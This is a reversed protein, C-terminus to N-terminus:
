KGGAAASKESYNPDATTDKYAEDPGVIASWLSLLYEDETQPPFHFCNEKKVRVRAAEIAKQVEDRSTYLIYALVNLMREEGARLKPKDM